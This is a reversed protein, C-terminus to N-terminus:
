KRSISSLAISHKSLCKSNNLFESNAKNKICGGCTVPFTLIFMLINNQLNVNLNFESKWSVLKYSSNFRKYFFFNGQSDDSGSTSFKM